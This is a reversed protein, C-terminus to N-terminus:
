LVSVFKSVCIMNKEVKWFYNSYLQYECHVRISGFIPNQHRAFWFFCIWICRFYRIFGRLTQIEWEYIIFLQANLVSHLSNMEIYCTDKIEFYKYLPIFYLRHLTKSGGAVVALLLLTIFLSSASHLWLCRCVHLICFGIVNVYIISIFLCLTTLSIFKYDVYTWLVQYSRTICKYEVNLMSGNRKLIWNKRIAATLM